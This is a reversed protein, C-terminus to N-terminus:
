ECTGMPCQTAFASIAMSVVATAAPCDTVSQVVITYDHGGCSVTAMGSPLVKLAAGVPQRREDMLDLVFGDLDQGGSAGVCFAGNPKYYDVNFSTLYGSRDLRVGNEFCMRTHLTEVAGTYTSSACSGSPTCDAFPATLCSPIDACTSLSTTGASGGGAKGSRPSARVSRWRALCGLSEM